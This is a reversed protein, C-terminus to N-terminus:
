LLKKMEMRALKDAQRNGNWRKWKVTKKLLPEKQHAKIHRYKVSHLRSFTYLEKILDLNKIDDVLRNNRRRKWGCLEWRSAWKTIANIVYKSDTYIVLEWRKLKNKYYQICIKIAEICALLEMRQNTVTEDKYGHSYNYKSNEKFYIGIGGCRINNNQKKSSSGDTFVKIRRDM